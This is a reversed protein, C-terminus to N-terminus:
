TTRYWNNKMLEDNLWEIDDELGTIELYAGSVPCRVVLQETDKNVLRLSRKINYTLRVIYDYAMRRTFDIPIFTGTHITM